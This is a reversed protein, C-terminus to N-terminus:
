RGMLNTENTGPTLIRVSVPDGILPAAHKEILRGMVTVVITIVIVTIILSALLIHKEIWSILPHTFVRIIKKRRVETLHEVPKPEARSATRLLDLTAQIDKALVQCSKCKRVHERVAAARGEGLERSMYDFLLPQIDECKMLKKEPKLPGETKNDNV